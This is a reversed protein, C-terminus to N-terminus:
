WLDAAATANGLNGNVYQLRHRASRGSLILPKQFEAGSPDSLRSPKWFNRDNWNQCM